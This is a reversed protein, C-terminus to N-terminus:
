PARIRSRPGAEVRRRAQHTDPVCAILGAHGGSPSAGTERQFARYAADSVDASRYTTNDGEVNAQAHATESSETVQTDAMGFGWTGVGGTVGEGIPKLSDSCRPSNSRRELM